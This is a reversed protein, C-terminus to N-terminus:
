SFEKYTRAAELGTEALAIAINPRSPMRSRIRAIDQTHAFAIEEQRMEKGVGMYRQQIQQATKVRGFQAALDNYSQMEIGVGEGRAAIATAERAQNELALDRMRLNESETEQLEQMNEATFRKLTQQNRLAAAQEVAAKQMKYAQQQAAFRLGGAVGTAAAMSVPDCM